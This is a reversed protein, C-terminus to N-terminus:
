ASPKPKKGNAKAREEDIESKPVRVLKKAFETFTDFESPTDVERVARKVAKRAMGSLTAAVRCPSPVTM